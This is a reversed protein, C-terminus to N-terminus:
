LLPAHKPPHGPAGRGARGGRGRRRYDDPYEAQLEGLVADAIAYTNAMRCSDSSWRRKQPGVGTCPLAMTGLVKSNGRNLVAQGWSCADFYEELTPRGPQKFILAELL